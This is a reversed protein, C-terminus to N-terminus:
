DFLRFARRMEAKERYVCAVPPPRHSRTPECRLQQSSRFVRIESICLSAPNLSRTKLITRVAANSSGGSRYKGLLHASAFRRRSKPAPRALDQEALRLLYKTRNLGVEAARWDIAAVKESRMRLSVVQTMRIREVASGHLTLRRRFADEAQRAAPLVRTRWVCRRRDNQPLM